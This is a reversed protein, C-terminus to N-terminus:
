PEYRSVVTAAGLRLVQLVREANHLRKADEVSLRCPFIRRKGFQDTYRWQWLHIEDMQKFIPGGGAGRKWDVGLFCGGKSRRNGRLLLSAFLAAAPILERM